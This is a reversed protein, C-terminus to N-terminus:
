VGGNVMKATSVNVMGFLPKLLVPLSIPLLAQYVVLEMLIITAPKQM